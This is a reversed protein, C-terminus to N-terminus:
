CGVCRNGNLITIILSSLRVIKGRSNYNKLFQDNLKKYDITIVITYFISILQNSLGKLEISNCVQVRAESMDIKNALEERTAVDPYHSTEFEKELIQLQDQTFTTRNRRLKRKQDVQSESKSSEEITESSSVNNEDSFYCNMLADLLFNNCAPFMEYRQALILLSKGLLINQYSICILWTECISFTKM